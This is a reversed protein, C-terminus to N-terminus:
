QDGLPWAWETNPAGSTAVLPTVSGGGFFVPPPPGPVCLVVAFVYLKYRPRVFRFNYLVLVFADFWKHSVDFSYLSLCRQTGFKPCGPVSVSVLPRAM